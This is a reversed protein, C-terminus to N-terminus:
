WAPIFGFPFPNSGSGARTDTFSRSISSFRNERPNTLHLLQGEVWGGLLLVLWTTDPSRQRGAGAVGRDAQPVGRRQLRAVLRAALGLGQL